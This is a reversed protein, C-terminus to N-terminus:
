SLWCSWYLATTFDATIHASPPAAVCTESLIVMQDPELQRAILDLTEVGIQDALVLTAGDIQDPARSLNRYQVSCGLQELRWAAEELLWRDALRATSGVLNVRGSRQAHVPVGIPLADM